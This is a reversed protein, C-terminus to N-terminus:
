FAHSHRPYVKCELCPLMADYIAQNRNQCAHICSEPSPYSQQMSHARTGQKPTAQTMSPMVARKPCPRQCPWSRYATNRIPVIMQRPTGPASINTGPLRGIMGLMPVITDPIPNMTGLMPVIMDPIPNMTELIANMTELM